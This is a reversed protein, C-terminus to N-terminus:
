VVTHGKLERCFGIQLGRLNAERLNVGRLHADGCRVQRLDAGTLDLGELNAYSLDANPIRIGQWSEIHYRKLTEQTLPVGSRNLVTISESALVAVKESKDERSQTIQKMLVPKM